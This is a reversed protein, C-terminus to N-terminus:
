RHKGTRKKPKIPPVEAKPVAVIRRTLERMRRESDEPTPTNVVGTEQAEQGTKEEAM